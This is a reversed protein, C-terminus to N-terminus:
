EPGLISPLTQSLVHRMESPLQMSQIIMLYGKLEKIDEMDSDEIRGLIELTTFGEHGLTSITKETLLHSRM